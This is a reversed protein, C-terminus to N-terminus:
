TAAGNTEKSMPLSVLKAERRKNTAEREEGKYHKQLHANVDRLKNQAGVYKAKAVQYEPTAKVHDPTLGTEDKPFKQLDKSAADHEAQVTDRYASVVGYPVKGGGAHPGSGPGGEHLNGDSDGPEAGMANMNYFALDDAREVPQGKRAKPGNDIPPTQGSVRNLPFGGTQFPTGGSDVPAPMNLRTQGGVQVPQGITPPIADDGAMGSNNPEPQNLWDGPRQGTNDFHDQFNAQEQQYDLGEKSCWTQPSMIQSTFLIQNAQTEQIRNRSIINPFGVIIEIADIAEVPFPGNIKSAASRLARYLIPLDDDRQEAQLGEFTKVAPGEAVMTSSYNANSADGSVMFEPMNVCAGITRLEAQLVTVFAPSDLAGLEKFEVNAKTDLMTGPRFREFNRVKGSGGQYQVSANAAAFNQIQGATTGSAWQRNWAVSAQIAAVIGMNKLLQEARRLNLRIPYFTPIGRRVNLYVNRKRHQVDDPNEPRSDIWYAKIDQSDEVDVEIGWAHAPDIHDAPTCVQWPEAFRLALGTNTEFLRLFTEGDMDQRKQVDAQVRAWKNKKCWADLVEQIKSVIAPDIHANNKPTVTYTHGDGLVYRVRNEMINKAWPNEKAIIRSLNRAMRLELENRFGLLGLYPESAGYNAAAVQDWLEGNEGRFADYPDVLSDFYDLSEMLGKREPHEPNRELMSRMGKRFAADALQPRAIENAMRLQSEMLTCELDSLHAELQSQRERSERLRKRRQRWSDFM